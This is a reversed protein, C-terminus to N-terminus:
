PPCLRSPSIITSIVHLTPQVEALSYQARPKLNHAQSLRSSTPWPDPRHLPSHPRRPPPVPHPPTNTPHTLTSLHPTPHTYDHHHATNDRRTPAHAARERVSSCAGGGLLKATM